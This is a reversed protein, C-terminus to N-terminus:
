KSVQFRGNDVIKGNKDKVQYIYLGRYYDTLDVITKPNAITQDYLKKGIFNFIQLSYDRHNTYKLDFTIQTIAPNPYCRVMTVSDQQPLRSQSFGSFTLLLSIILFYFIKM